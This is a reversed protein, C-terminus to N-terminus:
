EYNEISKLWSVHLEVQKVMKDVAKKDVANDKKNVIQNTSAYRLFDGQKWWKPLELKEEPKNKDQKV